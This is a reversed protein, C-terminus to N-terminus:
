KPEEEHTAVRARATHIPNGPSPNISNAKDEGLYLIEGSIACMVKSTESIALM